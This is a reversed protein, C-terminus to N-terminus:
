KSISFTNKFLEVQNKKPVSYKHKTNQEVQYIYLIISIKTIIVAFTLQIELIFYLFAHKIFHLNKIKNKYLKRKEKIGM